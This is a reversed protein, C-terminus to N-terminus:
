SGLTRRRIANVNQFIRFGLVVAVATVLDVGLEDGLWVLGAAVAANSILAVVFVRDSFTLELHARLGGLSADLAALAAVAIYRGQQVSLSPDLLVAAVVGAAVALLILM